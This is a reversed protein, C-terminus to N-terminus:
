KHLYDMNGNKLIYSLCGWGNTSMSGNCYDQSVTKVGTPVVYLNFIDRGFANPAKSGNLDVTIIGCVNEIDTDLQKCYDSSARIHIYSGDALILKYYNPNTDHNVSHQTGDLRWVNETYGFCGAETGCDKVVKLYPKIYNAFETASEPGITDSVNWENPYGNENMSLTVAQSMMSYFKKAKNVTVQEQFKNILTPMTMAAVVGIVGLTILVEALTFGRKM